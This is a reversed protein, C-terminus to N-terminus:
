VTRVALSTDQTLWLRGAISRMLPTGHHRYRPATTPTLTAILAHRLCYMEHLNTSSNVAAVSEM